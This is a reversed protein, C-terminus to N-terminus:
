KDKSITIRISDSRESGTGGATPPPSRPSRPTSSQGSLDTQSDDKGSSSQRSGLGSRKGSGGPKRFRFTKKASGAKQRQLRHGKGQGDSDKEGNVDDEKKSGEQDEEGGEEITETLSSDEPSVKDKVPSVHKSTRMKILLTSRRFLKPESSSQQSTGGQGASQGDPAGSQGETGTGEEVNYPYSTRRKLFRDVAKRDGLKVSMGRVPLSTRDRFSFVRTLGGGSPTKDLPSNADAPTSGSQPSSTTAVKTTGQFAASIAFSLRHGLSEAKKDTSVGAKKTTLDERLQKMETLLYMLLQGRCRCSPIRKGLIKQKIQQQYFYEQDTSCVRELIKCRIMPLLLVFLPTRYTVVFDLFNWMTVGGINKPVMDRICRAIRHWENSLLRDFCVMLIKLGLFGISHLSNQLGTISFSNSDSGTQGGQGKTSKSTPPNLSNLILNLTFQVDCLRLKPTEKLGGSIRIAMPYILNMLYM